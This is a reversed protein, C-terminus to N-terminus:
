SFLKKFLAGTATCRHRDSLFQLTICYADAVEHNGEYSEEISIIDLFTARRNRSRAKVQRLQRIISNVVWVAHEYDLEVMIGDLSLRVDGGVNVSSLRVM